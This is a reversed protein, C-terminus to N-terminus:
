GAFRAQVEVTEAHDGFIIVKIARGSGDVLGFSLLPQDQVQSHRLTGLDCVQGLLHMTLRGGSREDALSHFDETYLEKAPKIVLTESRCAMCGCPGAVFRGGVM